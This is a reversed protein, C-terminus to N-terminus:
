KQQQQKKVLKLLLSRFSFSHGLTVVIERGMGLICSFYYHRWTLPSGSFRPRLSSLDWHLWSTFPAKWPSPSSVASRMTMTCCNWPACPFDSPHPLSPEADCCLLFSWWLSSRAMSSLRCHPWLQDTFASIASKFYFIMKLLICMSGPLWFYIVQSLRHCVSIM